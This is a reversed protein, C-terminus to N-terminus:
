KKALFILKTMCVLLAAAGATHALAAIIPWHLVVNSVGTILQAIAIWGLAKIWFRIRHAHEDTRNAISRRVWVYILTLVTLTILAGLRHGWHIAILAQIDLADGTATKGLERWWTFGNHIDMDPIWKGHCLPFDTCALVAYNTSVWAGLFVQKFLVYM